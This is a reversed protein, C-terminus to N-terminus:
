GRAQAGALRGGSTHVRLNTTAHGVKPSLDIPLEPLLESAVKIINGPTILLQLIIRNHELADENHSCIILPRRGTAPDQTTVYPYFESGPIVEVRQSVGAAAPDGGPQAARAATAAATADESPQHQLDPLDHEGAMWADLMAQTPQEWRIHCVYRYQGADQAHRVSGELQITEAMHWIASACPHCRLCVEGKPLKHRCVPPLQQPDGVLVVLKNRFLEEFSSFRHTGCLRVLVDRWLQQAGMSAEDGVHCFAALIDEHAPEATTWEAMHMRGRPIIGYQSHLTDAHPGMQKAARATTAGWLTRRQMVLLRHVVARITHTKGAGAGAIVKFFGCGARTLKDFAAQQSPTLTSDAADACFALLDQDRRAHRERAARLFAAHDPVARPVLAAAEAATLRWMVLPVDGEVEEEIAADSLEAIAHLLRQLMKSIDAQNIFNRTCYQM